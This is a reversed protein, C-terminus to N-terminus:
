SPKGELGGELERVRARLAKLEQLIVPVYKSYDVGWFEDDKNQPNITHTVATPYVDVAQQAIVGYAREGTSKWRFDYVDTNDVINGADFTKLDEKLEASSSTLYSTAVSSCSIGGVATAASNLFSMANYGSVDSAARMCIGFETGGGYAISFAYGGPPTVGGAYPTRVTLKDVVNLPGGVLNFNTGDYQLYKTASTGFSFFGTTPTVASTIYGSSIGGAYLVEAIGVGGAVTLAGTTPSTSATTDLVKLPAGGFNFSIGNNSLYKTLGADFFVGPSGLGGFNAALGITAGSSRSDISQVSINGGAGVSSIANGANVAGGVGVGGAVTLAGTTPSTSATTSILKVDGWLQWPQFASGVDNISGIAAGAGSDFIGVNANPGTKVTLPWVNPITSAGANLRAAYAAGGVGVGGAVTLAGTTPSTSASTSTFSGTVVNIGGTASYFGNAGSTIGASSGNIVGGINLAGAVGVGGAVTLAGTTPSTSADTNLVSVTGAGAAAGNLRLAPPGANVSFDMVGNAVNSYIIRGKNGVGPTTFDILSGTALTGALKIQAYGNFTGLHVGATAPTAASAGAVSLSGSM